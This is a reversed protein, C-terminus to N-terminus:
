LLVLPTVDVGWGACTQENGEREQELVRVHQHHEGVWKISGFRRPDDPVCRKLRWARPWRPWLETTAYNIMLAISHPSISRLPKIRYIDSPLALWLGTQGTGHEGSCPWARVADHVEFRSYISVPPDKQSTDTVGWFLSLPENATLCLRSPRQAFGGPRAPARAGKRGLVPGSPQIWGLV